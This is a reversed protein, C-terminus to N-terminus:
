GIPPAGQQDLFTAELKAVFNHMDITAANLSQNSAQYIALLKKAGKFDNPHQTRFKELNTLSKQNIKMSKELTTKLKNYENKAKGYESKRKDMGAVATQMSDSHNIKDITDIGYEIADKYPKFSEPTTYKKEYDTKLKELGEKAPGLEKSIKYLKENDNCSDIAVHLEEFFVNLNKIDRYEHSGLTRGWNKEEPMINGNEFYLAKGNKCEAINKLNSEANSLVDHSRDKYFNAFSTNLADSYIHSSKGASSIDM